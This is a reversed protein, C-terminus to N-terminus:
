LDALGEHIPPQYGTFEQLDLKKNGNADIKQFQDKTLKEGEHDFAAEYEALSLQGDGNTDISKFADEKAPETGEDHNDDRYEGYDSDSYEGRHEVRTLFGDHNTDYETFMEQIDAASIGFKSEYERFEGKSIKEDGDTDVQSFRDKGQVNLYEQLSVKKDNDTDLAAFAKKLTETYKPDDHLTKGPAPVGDAMAHASLQWETFNLHKDGDKDAADFDGKAFAVEAIPAVYALFEEADVKANKDKDMAGIIKPVDATQGGHVHGFHHLFEADVFEFKDLSGDKTEDM